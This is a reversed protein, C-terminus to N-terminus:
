ARVRDLHDLSQDAAQEVDDHGYQPARQWTAILASRLVRRFDGDPFGFRDKTDECAHTDVALNWAGFGEDGHREIQDNADEASPQGDGRETELDYQGADILGRARDVGAGHVRYTTAM